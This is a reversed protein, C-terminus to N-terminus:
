VTKDQLVWPVFGAKLVNSPLEKGMIDQVLRACQLLKPLNIDTAIGMGELMHVLDETAINGTAGPAFPCGGLGDISSDYTTVGELLGAYVNALGAGRTDHFHLGLPVNKLKARMRRILERVQQPNAMGTTDALMIEQVGGAVGAEAIREVDEFPVWGQMSCGFSSSIAMGVRWGKDLAMRTIALAEALSDAISKGLLAKNHAESASVIVHIEEINCLLARKMASLNPILVIYTVGERRTIGALVDAADAVQPMIKPHGFVAAEFKSLGTESLANIIKIKDNTPIFVPESQFGDRPGVEIVTVKKPIDM